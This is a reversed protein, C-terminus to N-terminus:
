FQQVKAILQEAIEDVSVDKLIAGLIKGLPWNELDHQKTEKLPQMPKIFHSQQTFQGIWEFTSFILPHPQCHAILSLQYVFQQVCADGQTTGLLKKIEAVLRDQQEILFYSLVWDMWSGQGSWNKEEDPSCEDAMIAVFDHYGNLLSDPTRNQQLQWRWLVEELESLSVSQLAQRFGFLTQELDQCCLLWTQAQKTQLWALPILLQHVQDLALVLVRLLDDLSELLPAKATAEDGSNGLWNMSM